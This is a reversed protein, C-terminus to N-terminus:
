MAYPLHHANQFIYEKLEQFEQLKFIDNSTQAVKVYLLNNRRVIINIVLM